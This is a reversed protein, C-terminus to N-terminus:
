TWSRTISCAGEDLNAHETTVALMKGIQSSSSANAHLLHTAALSKFRSVFVTLDENKQRRCSTVKQFSSILRTVMAIPPDIAVALVIDRVAGVPDSTQLYDITGKAQAEDLM